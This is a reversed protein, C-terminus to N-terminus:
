NKLLIKIHMEIDGKIFTAGKGYARNSLVMQLEIPLTSAIKFFSNTSTFLGESVMVSQLYVLIEDHLGVFTNKKAMMIAEHPDDDYDMMMKKIKILDATDGRSMYSFVSEFPTLGCGTPSHIKLDIGSAMLHEFAVVNKKKIIYDYPFHTGRDNNESFNSLIYRMVIKMHSVDLPPFQRKGISEIWSRMFNVSTVNELYVLNDKCVKIVDEVPVDILRTLPLNAIEDLVTDIVYNFFRDYLIYNKMEKPQHDRPTMITKVDDRSFLIRLRKGHDCIKGIEYHCNPGFTGITLLYKLLEDDCDSVYCLILRWSHSNIGEKMIDHKLKKICEKREEPTFEDEHWVDEDYDDYIVRIKDDLSQSTM